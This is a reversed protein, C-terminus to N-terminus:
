GDDDEEDPVLTAHNMSDPRYTNGCIECVLNGHREIPESGCESCRWGM